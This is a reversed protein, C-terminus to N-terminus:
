AQEYMECARVEVGWGVDAGLHAAPHKSAIAVAEAMDKAEIIFFAGVLEKSETYPGDTVFPKGRGPRISKWERPAALSGLVTMKKTKRLAEDHDRCQKVLAEAESKPLAAFKTADYYGLCLYKMQTEM